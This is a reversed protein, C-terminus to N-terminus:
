AGAVKCEKSYSAPHAECLNDQCLPASLFTNGRSLISHQYGAPLPDNYQTLQRLRYNQQIVKTLRSLATMINVLSHAPLSPIAATTRSVKRM